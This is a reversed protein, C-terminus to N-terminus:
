QRAYRRFLLEMIEAIHEDILPRNEINNTLQLEKGSIYVYITIETHKFHEDLEIAIRIWLRPDGVCAIKPM